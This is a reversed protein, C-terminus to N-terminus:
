GASRLPVFRDDTLWLFGISLGAGVLSTFVTAPTMVGLAYFSRLGPLALIVVYAAGLLTCLIGLWTARRRDSAELALVLYLGVVILTTLAATRARV